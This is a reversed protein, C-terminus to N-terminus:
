PKNNCTIFVPEEEQKPNELTAMDKKDKHLLVKKSMNGATASTERKLNMKAIKAQEQEQRKLILLYIEDLSTILFDKECLM